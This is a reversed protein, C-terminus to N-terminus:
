SVPFPDPEGNKLCYQRIAEKNTSRGLRVDSAYIVLQMAMREAETPSLKRENGGVNVFVFRGEEPGEAMAGYTFDM